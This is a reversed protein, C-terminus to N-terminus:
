SWKEWDEQSTFAKNDPAIFAFSDKVQSKVFRADIQDQSYPNFKPTVKLCGALWVDDILQREKKGSRSM